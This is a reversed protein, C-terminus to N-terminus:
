PCLRRYVQRLRPIIRSWTYHRQVFGYAARGLALSRTGSRQQDELLAVTRAAFAEPDDAILLEQNDVVGLGEVGLSTSVIAKGGAMAELVKFRTGGGVRMPVVYVAAAEIYPRPDAVAGTVTIAPHRRLRDLRPHPAMGVIQFHVEPAQAQILPLVRDAFWLVADVNPRYDMKGTFVLTCGDVPRQVAMPEDGLDIGNPVVVPDIGAGLRRLALRDPESVALVADAAQCIAREYRHLKQWQILSYLAAPWRRWERLDVFAARKQLLYEANHDDFVFRWTRGANAGAQLAYHAMEIGEAQVIAYGEEEIMAAITRGAAPAALRLAMDPQASTLTDLTRRQLSRRPQPFVEIRRCLDHLPSGAALTEGPAAFTALHITHDQALHRILNFNRLTTGQRPPYPLQPTLFLLKMKACAHGAPPRFADYCRNASPKQWCRNARSWM